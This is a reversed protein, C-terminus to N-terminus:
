FLKKGYETKSVEAFTGDAVMRGEDFIIVRDCKSAIIPDNSSVFLTWPKDSGTICGAIRERDNSSLNSLDTDMTILPPNTCLCRAIMIKKVVTGPLAHGAPNIHRNYGLPNSQVFQELGVASIARVVSEFDATPHGVTINEYLTGRFLDEEQSIDGIAALLSESQFNRQPIGNYAIIGDEAFWSGSLLRLFTSRGSGSGGAICIKDGPHATINIGEIAYRQDVAYRYNLNRVEVTMGGGKHVDEVCLGDVTELPIDTVLGLKEVSTLVDYVTEMSVILKEVSSALLLILIEAAVFQGINIANTMALYGGYGLFAATILTKFFVAGGFQWLLIRFHKRRAKIYHSTLEDVKELPLSSDGAQKFTNSTRAVEELWHAVEYKYSSEKLSSQLGNPTTFYFLAVILLLLGLSFAIFASHYFSLLLLGLFTEWGATSFDLLIKPLGKQLSMIEFFRNAIEPPYKGDLSETRLRPLRYALEFSARVFIKQQLNEAISLQMIKLIGVLAVGFTVIGVLTLWSAVFQGGAVLNIIAQVGLPVSLNILGAFVSYLYIHFIERRDPALLRFFRKLPTFSRYDAM